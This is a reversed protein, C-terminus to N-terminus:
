DDFGLITVSGSTFTVVGGQTFVTIKNAQSASTWTFGGNFIVQSVRYGTFSGKPSVGTVNQMFISILEPGVNTNTLRIQNQAAANSAVNNEYFSWEYNAGADTNFQIDTLDTASKAGVKIIILLNKKATFSVTKTTLTALDGTALEAYAGAIGWAPIGGSVILTQGATGIALRVWATGDFYIIDALVPNSPLVGSGRLLPM